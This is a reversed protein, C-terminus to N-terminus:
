TALTAACFYNDLPSQGNVSEFWMFLDFRLRRLKRFAEARAPTPANMALTELAAAGKVGDVAAAESVPM